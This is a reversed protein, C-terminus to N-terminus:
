CYKSCNTYLTHATDCKRVERKQAGRKRAWRTPFVTSTRLTFYVVRVRVLKPTTSRVNDIVAGGFAIQYCNSLQQKPDSVVDLVDFAHKLEVSHQWLSELETIPRVGNEPM